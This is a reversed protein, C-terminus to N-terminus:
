RRSARRVEDALRPLRARLRRVAHRATGDGAPVGAPQGRSVAYAHGQGHGPRVSGEASRDAGHPRVGPARNRADVQKAVARWRAWLALDGAGDFSVVVLLPPKGNALRAPFTRTVPAAAVAQAGTQIAQACGVALAAVIAAAGLLNAGPRVM